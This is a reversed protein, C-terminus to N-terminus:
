EAAPDKQTGFAPVESTVSFVPCDLGVFFSSPTCGEVGPSSAAGM